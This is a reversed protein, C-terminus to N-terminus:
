LKLGHRTYYRNTFAILGAILVVLLVTTALPVADLPIAYVLVVRLVADLLLGTGWVATVLRFHHRFAPDDDWRAEWAVLGEEGVKAIVIGRAAALMFPRRTLLSTLMGLGVATTIWSDRILLVRADGTVLSLLTGALVVGLTFVAMMEVRGRKVLGWAIWPLVLVGGAVLALWQGAGVARLLYYSGLPLVLEFVLQAALQRRLARTRRRREADTAAPLAHAGTNGATM